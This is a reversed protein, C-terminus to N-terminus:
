LWYIFTFTLSFYILSHLFLVPRSSHHGPQCDSCDTRIQVKDKVGRAEKHLRQGEREFLIQDLHRIHTVGDIGFFATPNHGLLGTAKVFHYCLIGLILCLKSHTCCPQHRHKPAPLAKKTHRHWTSNLCFHLTLPHKDDFGRPTVRHTKQTVHLCMKQKKLQM